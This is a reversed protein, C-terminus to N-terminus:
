FVLYVVCCTFRRVPRNIGKKGFFDLQEQMNQNFLFALLVGIGPPLTPDDGERRAFVSPTARQKKMKTFGGTGKKHAQFPPLIQAIDIHSWM